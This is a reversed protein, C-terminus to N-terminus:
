KAHFHEGMGSEGAALLVYAWSYLWAVVILFALFWCMAMLEGMPHEPKKM